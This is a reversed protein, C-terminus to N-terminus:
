AGLTAFSIYRYAADTLVKHWEANATDTLKAYVEPHVTVTIVTTGNASKEVLYKLSALTLLPSDALNLNKSLGQLELTELKACKDFMGEFSSCNTISKIKCSRLEVCGYFAYMLSGNMVVPIVATEMKSCFEAYRNYNGAWSTKNPINTRVNSGVYRENNDTAYAHRAAIAVAEEYTLWLENLFYPHEADPANDPDYKGFTGCCANWMDNFVARKAAEIHELYEQGGVPQLATSDANIKYITGASDAFLCDKRIRGNKDYFDDRGAWNSYLTVTKGHTGAKQVYGYFQATETDFVVDAEDFETDTDYIVTTASSTNPTYKSLFHVIGKPRAQIENIALEINDIRESYETTKMIEGSAEDALLSALTEANDTIRNDILPQFVEMDRCVANYLDSIETDVYQEDAKLDLKQRLEEVAVMDVKIEYLHNSDKVWKGKEGVYLWIQATNNLASQQTVEAEDASQPIVEMEGLPPKIEAQGLDSMVGAFWGDLPGPYAARLKAETRFVGKNVSKINPAELWGEVKLNKKVTANGQVKANGGMTTHRGVAVDGEIETTKIQSM